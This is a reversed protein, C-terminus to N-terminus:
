DRATYFESLTQYLARAQRGSMTVRVLRDEGTSSTSPLIVEVSTQKKSGRSEIKVGARTDHDVAVSFVNKNYTKNLSNYLKSKKVLRNTRTRANTRTTM